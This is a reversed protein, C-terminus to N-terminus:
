YDTIKKMYRRGELMAQGRMAALRYAFVWLVDFFILPAFLGRFPQELGSLDLEAADLVMVNDRDGFRLLFDRAREEIRRTGDCGLLAIFCASRDVVEFPGHFFENAHIAQSNIWQMEMLVCIAYSYAAGYNAGAATTYIVPRDRYRDAYRDFSPEYFAKAKDIAHQLNSLSPLLQPVLDVDGRQALLGSLLMYLVAYNSNAADVKAGTTYHAQYAVVVEAASALPSKPDLTMAITTAGAERAFRAAAATEKTTGTQSCLIVLAKEGLQRPRRCIFEDANYVDSTLTLAHRDLLYKGPHMISLSGGCAVLFIHSLQRDSVASLAKRVDENLETKMAKGQM